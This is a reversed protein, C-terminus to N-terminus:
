KNFDANSSIANIKKVMEKGEDCIAIEFGEPFLNTVAKAKRVYETERVNLARKESHAIIIGLKTFIEEESTGMTNLLEIPDNTSFQGDMSSYIAEDRPNLNIKHLDPAITLQGEMRGIIRQTQANKLSDLHNLYSFFVAATGNCFALAFDGNVLEAGALAGFAMSPIHKFQSEKFIRLQASNIPCKENM